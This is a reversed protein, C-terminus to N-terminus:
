HPLLNYTSFEYSILEHFFLKKITFFIYEPQLLLSRIKWFTEKPTSLLCLISSNYLVSGPIRAVIFILIKETTFTEDAQLCLSIFLTLHRWMTSKDKNILQGSISSQATYTIIINFYSYSFFIKVQHAPILILSTRTIKRKYIATITLYYIFHKCQLNNIM